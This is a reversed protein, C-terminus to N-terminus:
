LTKKLLDICKCVSSVSGLELFTKLVNYPNNFNLVGKIHRM